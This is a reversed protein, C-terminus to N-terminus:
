MWRHTSAEILQAAWKTHREIYQRLQHIIEENHAAASRPNSNLARAIQNLNRGISLLQYNSEGLAELERQGFEPAKRLQGRILALIWRQVSYGAAAAHQRTLADEDDTFRIERRVRGQGPAKGAAGLPLAPASATADLESHATLKAVIQRMAEGPAVQNAACWDLWAKKYGLLDVTVRTDRRKGM